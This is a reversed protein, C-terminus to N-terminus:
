RLRKISIKTSDLCFSLAVVIFLTGPIKYRVLAGAVPTSWGVVLYIGIGALFFLIALNLVNKEPKKFSFLVLIFFLVLLINEFVSLMLLAGNADWPFPRFFSNLLAEPITSILSTLSPKLPTIEFYSAANQEKALIIFDAQKLAVLELLNFEQSLFNFVGIFILIASLMVTLSTVIPHKNKESFVIYGILLVLFFLFVYFKLQFLLTLLYFCVFLWIVKQGNQLVSEKLKVVALFIFGLAFLMLGEKLVGSTWFLISPTLFILYFFLKTKEPIVIQLAKIFAVTGTFSLFCMFVTHVHFYSFSFLRVFANFRIIAHSDNYMSSQYVRFWNNMHDYYTVNFYESDNWVGFLMKFYDMPKTRIAKTM